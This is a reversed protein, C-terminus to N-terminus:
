GGKGGLNHSNRERSNQLTTRKKSMKSKKKGKAEGRKRGSYGTERM